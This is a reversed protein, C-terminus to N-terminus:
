VISGTNLTTNMPNLDLLPTTANALLHLQGPWLFPFIISENSTEFSTVTWQSFSDPRRLRCTSVQSMMTCCKLRCATNFMCEACLTVTLMWEGAQRSSCCMNLPTMLSCNDNPIAPHAGCCTSRRWASTRHGKSVEATPFICNQIGLLIQTYVRLVGLSDM